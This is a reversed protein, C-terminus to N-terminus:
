QSRLKQISGLDRGTPKDIAHFEPCHVGISKALKSCLLDRVAPSSLVAAEAFTWAVGTLLGVVTGAIVQEVSHCRLYVRSISVSSCYVACGILALTREAIALQRHTSAHNERLPHTV